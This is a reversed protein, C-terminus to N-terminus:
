VMSSNTHVTQYYLKKNPVIRYTLTFVNYINFNLNYQIRMSNNLEYKMGGVTFIKCTKHLLWKLIDEKRKRIREEMNNKSTGINYSNNHNSNNHLCIRIVIVTSIKVRTHQKGLLIEYM